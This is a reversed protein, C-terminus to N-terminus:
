KELLQLGELASSGSPTNMLAKSFLVIAERQKGLKFNTWALMTLGDYDFPYLNVVKEFHKYAEQFEDRGYYILGLRHHAVSNNPNINLIKQYQNIVMEWNGLASAPLVVGWRPEISYPMLNIAKNYFALSESFFGSQYTLWGLRLNIEYSDENYVNKLVKIADAYKGTGENIYSQQFADIINSISKQSLAGFPM